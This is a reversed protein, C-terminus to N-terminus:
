ALVPRPRGGDWCLGVYDAQMKDTPRMGVLDIIVHDATAHREITEFARRDNLGVVLLDSSAIVRELDPRLQAGIHPLHQEIFRRNAGLLRSTQVSPDYVLLNLGKGILREALLVLPSERLDDTGTKFSLGVLGIRRRGSELIKRLAHELHLRNSTLIGSLMPLEVDRMRALHMTARLDKPLCSGGFAFGPRLYYPSLNLKQDQCFIDMVKHADVSLAKCV